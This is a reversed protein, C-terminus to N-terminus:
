NIRFLNELWKEAVHAVLANTTATTAIIVIITDSHANM